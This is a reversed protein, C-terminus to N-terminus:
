KCRSSLIFMRILKIQVKMMAKMRVAQAGVCAGAVGVACGVELEVARGDGIAVSVRVAVAVGTGVESGM